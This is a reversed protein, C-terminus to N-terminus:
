HRDLVDRNILDMRQFDGALGFRINQLAREAIARNSEFTNSGVHPTLVVNPLSRLDGTGPAPVYPEHTFVDLAAGALRGTSLWEFLAVEDVVAGRATNIVWTRENMQALRNRDLFKLTDPRAPMNLSVFDADRVAAAFDNTVLEFHEIARPAPANSRTCGVVHMGFGLSAMRALARGIGGCGIIALRKGYVDHGPPANWGGTTMEGLAAPFRRSAAVILLMAHEAVSQNLVDPTNTCLVRAASARATDIGDFGVGFRAIVGREPLAEYLPGVYRRGGVVVYRAQSSRIAAALEHEDSPAPRCELGAASSFCDEGKRYESETVLVLPTQATMDRWFRGNVRHAAAEYEAARWM